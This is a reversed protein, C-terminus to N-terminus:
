GQALAQAPPPTAEAPDIGFKAQYQANLDAWDPVHCAEGSGAAESATCEVANTLRALCVTWGAGDRAAKLHDDFTHTLTLVTGGEGTPELEWLLDGETGWRYGLRDIPDVHTVVGDAIWSSDFVLTAGVELDGTFPSPHWAPLDAPDTLARWVREQSQSFRREFRLASKGDIEILDADAAPM